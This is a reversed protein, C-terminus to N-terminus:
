AISLEITFDFPGTYCRYQEFPRPGVAASGIGNNDYGLHLVTMDLPTHDHPHEADCENGLSWIFVSAHNKLREVVARARYVDADEWDPNQLTWEAMAERTEEVKDFGHRELDAESMVYFGLEDAIDFFDPRPPQHTTGIADINSRKMTILDARM